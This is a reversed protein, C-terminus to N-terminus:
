LRHKRPLCRTLSSCSSLYNPAQRQRRLSFRNELIERSNSPLSPCTQPCPVELRCVQSRLWSFSFDAQGLLIWTRALCEELVSRLELRAQRHTRICQNVTKCAVYSSGPLTPM